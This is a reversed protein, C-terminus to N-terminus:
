EKPTSAKSNSADTQDKATDISNTKTEIKQKSKKPIQRLMYCDTNEQYGSHESLHQRNIGMDDYSAVGKVSFVQYYDALVEAIGAEKIEKQLEEGQVFILKPKQAIIEEKLRALLEKRDFEPLLGLRLMAVAENDLSKMLTLPEGTLLFTAPRRRMQLIAPFAPNEHISLFLVPDNPECFNYLLDYMAAYDTQCYQFHGTALEKCDRIIQGLADRCCILTFAVTLYTHLNKPHKTGWLKVAFISLNAIALCAFMFVIAHASLGRQLSAFLFFGTVNLIALPALPQERAFRPRISGLGATIMCILSFMYILEKRVVGNANYKLRMDFIMSAWNLPVLYKLLPQRIAVPLVFVHAIYLVSCGFVTLLEPSYLLRRRRHWVLFFIEWALLLPLFFLTINAGIAALIGVRIAQSRPLEHGQVRLWRSVFYPMTFLLFLHQSQGFEFLLMLNLGSFAIAFPILVARPAYFRTQRLIRITYWYSFVSLFLTLINFCFIPDLHLVQGLSTPVLALYIQLPTQSVLYDKYPALGSVLTLKACQLTIAPDSGIRVPHLLVQVFLIAFVAVAFKSTASIKKLDIIQKARGM